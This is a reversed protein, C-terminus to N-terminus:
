GEVCVLAIQESGSVVLYQNHKIKIFTANPTKAKIIAISTSCDLESEQFMPDGVPNGNEDLTLIGLMSGASALTAVMTLATTLALTKM